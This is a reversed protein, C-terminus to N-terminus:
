NFYFHSSNTFILDKSILIEKLSKESIYIYRYIDIYIFIYMYITVLVVQIVAHQLRNKLYVKSKNIYFKYIM